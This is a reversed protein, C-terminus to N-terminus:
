RAKRRRHAAWPEHRLGLALREMQVATATRDLRSAILVDPKGQAFAVRILRRESETWPKRHSM